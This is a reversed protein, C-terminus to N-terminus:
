FASDRIQYRKANAVDQDVYKEFRGMGVIYQGNSPMVPCAVQVRINAFQSVSFGEVQYGLSIHIIHLCKLLM